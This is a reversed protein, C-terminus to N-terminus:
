NTDECLRMDRLRVACPFLSYMSNPVRDTERRLTGASERGRGKAKQLEMEEEYENLIISLTAANSARHSQYDVKEISGISTDATSDYLTTATSGNSTREEKTRGRGAARTEEELRANSYANIAAAAIGRGSSKSRTARHGDRSSTTSTSRTSGDFSPRKSRRSTPNSNTPSPFSAYSLVRPTEYLLERSLTSFRRSGLNQHYM